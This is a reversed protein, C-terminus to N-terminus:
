GHWKYNNFSHLKYINIKCYWPNVHDIDSCKESCYKWRVTPIKKKCIKCFNAKKSKGLKLLKEAYICRYCKTKNLFDFIEYDNGCEPCKM